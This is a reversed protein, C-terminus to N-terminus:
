LSSINPAIAKGACQLDSLTLHDRFGDPVAPDARVGGASTLDIRSTGALPAVLPVVLPAAVGTGSLEPFCPPVPRHGHKGPNSEVNEPHSVSLPIRTGAHPAVRTSEIGILFM